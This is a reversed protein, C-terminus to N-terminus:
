RRVTEDAQKKLVNLLVAMHKHDHMLRKLM